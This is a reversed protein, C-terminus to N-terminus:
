CTQQLTNRKGWQEKITKNNQERMESGFRNSETGYMYFTYLDPSVLFSIRRHKVHILTCLQLDSVAQHFKPLM